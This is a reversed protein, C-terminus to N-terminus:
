PQIRGFSNAILWNQQDPEHCFPIGDIGIMHLQM